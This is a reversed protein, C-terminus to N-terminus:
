EAPTGILEFLSDWRNFHPILHANARVISPYHNALYKLCVRFTRREGLGGRVNGAYFMMKTAILPDIAMANAFKSEIEAVSRPRLAGIQSFLDLLANNTTSYAMAGNETLKINSNNKATTAFNM